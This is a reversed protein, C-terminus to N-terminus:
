NRVKFTYDALHVLKEDETVANLEIRYDDYKLLSSPLLFSLRGQKVQSAPIAQRSWVQVGEFTSIVLRYKEYTDNSPLKLQMQVRESNPKLTITKGNGGRELNTPELLVSLFPRLAKSQLQALSDEARERAEKELNLQASLQQAAELEAALKQQAARATSELAERQAILRKRESYSQFVLLILSAMFLLAVAGAAAVAARPLSRLGALIMSWPPPQAQSQARKAARVERLSAILDRTFEVDRRQSPSNDLLLEFRARRDESLRGLLYEDILASETAVLREFFEGDSLFQEEMTSREAETVDDLLFRTM